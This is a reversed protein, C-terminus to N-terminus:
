ASAVYSDAVLVMTSRSELEILGQSMVPRREPEPLDDPSSRSTDVAIRWQRDSRPPLGFQCPELGANFLLALTLREHQEGADSILCGIRNDPGQWDPPQGGAGLWTVIM